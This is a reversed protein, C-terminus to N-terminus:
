AIETFLNWHEFITNLCIRNKFMQPDFQLNYSNLLSRRSYLNWTADGLGFIVSNTPTIGLVNCVIRQKESYKKPIYDSNFTSILKNGIAAGYANNYGINSHLLQGDFINHKTYRMGIRHHAVPFMKSLSFAVTDICSYTVDIICHQSIGYYCCDILVPIDLDCCTRMLENYQDPSNGTDCFPFSIVLADGAKLDAASTIFEWPFTDQWSRLHYFYEGVLCKFTRTHNRIYFSDFAQTTGASFSPIYSSLGVVQNTSHSNIWDIFTTEFKKLTQASNNLAHLTYDSNVLINNVFETTALDKIAKSGVYLHDAIPKASFYNLSPNDHLVISYALEKGKAFM